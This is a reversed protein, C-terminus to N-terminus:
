HLIYWNSVISCMIGTQCTGTQLMIHMPQAQAHNRCTPLGVRGAIEGGQLGLGM